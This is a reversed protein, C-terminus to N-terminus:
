DFIQEREQNNIHCGQEEEPERDPGILWWSEIHGRKPQVRLMMVATVILLSVGLDLLGRYECRFGGVQDLLNKSTASVHIRMGEGRKEIIRALNATDSMVCYNPIRSGVVVGCAPGSFLTTPSFQPWLSALSLGYRHIGMRINLRANPRHPIQFVVSGALLDLAM